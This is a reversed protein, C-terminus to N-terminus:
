EISDLCSGKRYVFFSYMFPVAAFGAGGVYMQFQQKWINSQQPNKFLLETYVAASASLVSNLLALVFGVTLGHSAGASLEPLQSIGIAFCMLFAGIWQAGSVAKRFFVRYLLLTLPIRTQVLVMWVAPTVYALSLFFINNTIAYIISPLLLRWNFPTWASGHHTTVHMFFCVLAKSLELLVVFLTQDMPFRDDNHYRIAYAGVVKVLECSAILVCLKVSTKSSLPVQRAINLAPAPSPINIKSEVLPEADDM